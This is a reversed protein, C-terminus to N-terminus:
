HLVAMPRLRAVPRVLENSVLVGMAADVGRDDYHQVVEPDAGSYRYRLTRNHAPDSRSLGSDAFQQVVTGAGHCASHLSDASRDGAVALYSSTRHTGPVLVAQGTSAFVTGPRM